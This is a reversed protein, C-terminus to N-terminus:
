QCYIQVLITQIQLRNVAEDDYVGRHHTVNDRKVCDDDYTKSEEEDLTSYFCIQGEIVVCLM